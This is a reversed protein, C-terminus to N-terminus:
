EMLLNWGILESVDWEAVGGEIKAGDHNPGGPAPEPAIALAESNAGADDSCAIEGTLIDQVLDGLRSFAHATISDGPFLPRGGREGLDM